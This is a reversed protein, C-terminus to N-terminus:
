RVIITGTAKSVPGDAPKLVTSPRTEDNASAENGGYSRLIIGGRVGSVPRNDEIPRLMMYGDQMNEEENVVTEPKTKEINEEAKPSAFPTEEALLNGANEAAEKQRKKEAALQELRYVEQRQNIIGLLLEATKARIEKMEKYEEALADPVPILAHVAALKEKDAEMASTQKFKEEFDKIKQSVSINLEDMRTKYQQIESNDTIYQEAGIKSLVLEDDKLMQGFEEYVGSHEAQTQETKERLSKLAQELDDTFYLELKSSIDNLEEESKATQERIEAVDNDSFDSKRAKIQMEQITRGIEDLRTNQNQYHEDTEAALNKGNYEELRAVVATHRDSLASVLSQAQEMKENLIRAAEDKQAQEKEAIKQWHEDYKRAINEVSVDLVPNNLAGTFAFTYPAIDTLNKYNVTSKTNIRWDKLNIEGSLALNDADNELLIDGLTVVGNQANLTVDIPRFATQGSKLNNQMMQFLGKSYKRDKLDTEIAGLDIGTVEIAQTKLKIKGSLSAIMDEMSAASTEFESSLRVKDSSIKYVSGGKKVVPINDVSINGRMRPSKGYSVTVDGSVNSDGARFSAYKVSLEDSANLVRGAFDQIVSNGFVGKTCSLKLDLELNKYASFDFTARGFNPRAWFTDEAKLIAESTKTKQVNLLREINLESVATDGKIAYGNKNRTVEVSGVYKVPGLFMGFNDLRFKGVNGYIHSKGNFVGRFVKSNKLNFNLKPLLNELKQTKMEAMGDFQIEKNVNKLTGDYNFKNNDAQIDTRAKIENFSGSLEGVVTFNKQSFIDWKPLAIEYKEAFNNLNQSKLNFTLVDIYPQEQSINKILGSFQLATDMINETQFKMIALEDNEYSVNFLMNQASVGRFIANEIEAAAEIKYDKWKALMEADHRLVSLIDNPADQELPFVYTDLNLKDAQIQLEYRQEDFQAAAQGTLKFEDMNLSVNKLNGEVPSLLMDASFDTNLYAASSPAKIEVNMASLFTRLNKSEANLACVIQPQGEEAKMQGSVTIQTKGACEAFFDDVSLVNNKWVGKTSVTECVGSVNDSVTMRGATVDFSGEWTSKPEYEKDHYQMFHEQLWVIVPRVDADAVQYKLSFVNKDSKRFDLPVSVDGAGVFYPEFKVALRSFDARNGTFAIDEASFQMPKNYQEELVDKGAFINVTDAMRMFEGSFKGKMATSQKNYTGNYFFSAETAPHILRVQFGVDDFQALSDISLGLGYRENGYVFNGQIQYPGSQLTEAQIETSFDRLEINVGYKQHELHVVSRRLNLIQVRVENDYYDQAETRQWNSKGEQDFIIWVEAGDVSLSQVDPAGHLLSSLTVAMDMKDLKALVKGDKRSLVSVSKASMKPHPFLSVDLNGAFDINEGVVSSFQAALQEKHANWDILSVYTSLGAILLVVVGLSILIIKKM